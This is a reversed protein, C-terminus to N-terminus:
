SPPAIMTTKQAPTPVIDRLGKRMLANRLEVGRIVSQRQEVVVFGFREFFPQATLSVNSTLETISLRNSESHIAEMLAKGVGKRPHNGSVFFHDIYGNRQVDAYGVPKDDIEAVFPNIGNIRKVWIEHDLDLPAWANLQKESYDNRAILHIASYFVEFLALEEGPQFRRIKM